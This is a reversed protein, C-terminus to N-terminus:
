ETSAVVCPIVRPSRAPSVYLTVGVISLVVKVKWEDVCLSIKAVTDVLGFISTCAPLSVALANLQLRGNAQGDWERREREREREGGQCSEEPTDSVCIPKSM